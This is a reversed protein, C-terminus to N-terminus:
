DVNGLLINRLLVDDTSLDRPGGTQTLKIWDPGNKLAMYAQHALNDFIHYDELDRYRTFRNEELQEQAKKWGIRAGVLAGVLSAITDSNGATNVAEALADFLNDPHRLFIYVAAALADDAQWGLWQNEPLSTNTGLIKEPSVDNLSMYVALEIMTSTLLLEKNINEGQLLKNVLKAPLEGVPALEAGKFVWPNLLAKPKYTHEANDYTHAARVMENVIQLPTSGQLACAIGEVLASCAARATPHRHTLRSQQDALDKRMETDDASYLLLGIPWAGMVSGADNEQAIGEDAVSDYNVPGRWWWPLRRSSDHWAGMIRSLAQCSIENTRNHVRIDFLPDEHNSLELGFVHKEFIARWRFVKVFRDAFARITHTPDPRQSKQQILEELVIRAMVTDDTYAAVKKEKVCLSYPNEFPPWVCPRIEDPNPRKKKITFSKLVVWDEVRFQDFSTLGRPGYVEKISQTTDKFKTIRGLADGLASGLIAGRFKDEFSVPIEHALAAQTIFSLALLLKANM